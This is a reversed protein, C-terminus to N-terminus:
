NPILLFGDLWTKKSKEDQKVVIETKKKDSEQKSQLSQDKVTKGVIVKDSEELDVQGMLRNLEEEEFVDKLDM